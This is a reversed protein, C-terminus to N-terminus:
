AIRETRAWTGWSSGFNISSTMTPHAIGSASCPMFMARMPASSAPRGSVTPATVTFRKQADPSVASEIAASRMRTPSASTMMAPPASDIVITGIIPYLGESLGPMKAFLSCTAM